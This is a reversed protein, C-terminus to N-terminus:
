LLNQTNLKKIRFFESRDVRCPLIDHCKTESKNTNITFIEFEVNFMCPVGTSKLDPDKIRDHATKGAGWVKGVKILDPMYPNTLIYILGPKWNYEKIASNMKEKRQNYGSDEIYKQLNQLKEDSNGGRNAAAVANKIWKNINPTNGWCGKMEEWLHTIQQYM